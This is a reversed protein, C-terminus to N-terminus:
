GATVGLYIEGMSVPSTDHLAFRDHDDRSLGSAYTPRDVRFGSQELRAAFDRGYLRVHDFQGYLREREDPDVVSPDEATAEAGTDIPHQFVARGPGTLVRALERMALRDDPVHELVHSCVVLDFSADPFPVRQIDFTHDVRPGASLDAGVYLQRHKLHPHIGEEPALHLVRLAPHLLGSDRLFLLM